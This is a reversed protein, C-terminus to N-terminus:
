KKDDAGEGKSSPHVSGVIAQGGSNVNVHEVVINQQQGKGRHRNLAEVQELFVRMLRVARNTSVDVGEITQNNRVTQKMFEMALNHVSVMQVALLSELEDKPGIGDIAAIMANIQQYLKLGPPDEVNSIQHLLYTALHASPHLHHAVIVSARPGHWVILDSKSVHKIGVKKLAEFTPRLWDLCVQIGGLLVAAISEVFAVVYNEDIQERHEAARERAKATHQADAL